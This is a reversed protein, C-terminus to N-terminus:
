FLACGDFQLENMAAFYDGGHRLHCYAEFKTYACRYELPDAATSFIYLLDSGGFNITAHHGGNSSNPKQWFEVGNNTNLYNWGFEKIFTWSTKDNFEQVIPHMRIHRKPLTSKQHPTSLEDLSRGADILIQRETTSISPLNWYDGEIVKYPIGSPHVDAPSFALVVYSGIERTEILTEVRNDALRRSALRRSKEVGGPCRFILHRGPRPTEVLMLRKILGPAAVGVRQKYEKLLYIEEFSQNSIKGGHAISYETGPQSDNLKAFSASYHPKQDIQSPNEKSEESATQVM